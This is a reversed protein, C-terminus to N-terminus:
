VLESVDKFFLPEGAAVLSHFVDHSLLSPFLLSGSCMTGEPFASCGGGGLFLFVLFGFCFFFYLFLLFVTM